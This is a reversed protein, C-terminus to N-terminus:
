SVAFARVLFLVLSTKVLSTFALPWQMGSKTTSNTTMFKTGIGSSTTLVPGFINTTHVLPIPCIAIGVVSVNLCLVIQLPLPRQWVNGPVPEGM